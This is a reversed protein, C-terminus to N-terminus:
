RGSSRTGKESRETNAALFLRGTLDQTNVDVQSISSAGLGEAM